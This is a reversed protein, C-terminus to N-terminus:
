KQVLRQVIKRIQAQIHPDDVGRSRNGREIDVVAKVIGEFMKESMKKLENISIKDTVLLM